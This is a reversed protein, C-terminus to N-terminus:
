NTGLIDTVYTVPVGFQRASIQMAERMYGRAMAANVELQAIFCHQM